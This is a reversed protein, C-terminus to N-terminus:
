FHFYLRYYRIYCWDSICAPSYGSRGQKNKWRVAHVDKRGHFLNMFLKVKEQKNTPVTVTAVACENSMEGLLASRKKLLAKKEQELYLLQDEIKKLKESLSQM